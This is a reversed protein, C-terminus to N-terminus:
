GRAAAARASLLECYQAVYRDATEEISWRRTRIRAADGLRRREAPADLLRRIERALGAADGPAVLVGADGVVEDLGPNRTAVVACGAAMAEAAAIGFGESHSCHVYVDSARLIAPVAEQHGLFRVRAAIGLQQALRRLEPEKPGKGLLWLEADPLSALARFVMEHDKQPELRAIFTLVFRQTPVIPALAAPSADAFRELDVGNPVVVIRSATRPAWDVLADATAKSNCFVRDYRQYLWRDVPRFWAKRRLNTTNHETTVVPCPLAVLLSALAMWLQGPFLHIHILDFEPAVRALHLIHSPSYVGGEASPLFRVGRRHQENELPTDLHQLVMVTVTVGRRELHPILDFVLREAGALTLTNIVLLLRMGASKESGTGYGLYM